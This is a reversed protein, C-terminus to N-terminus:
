NHNAAKKLASLVGMSGMVNKRIKAVAQVVINNEGDIDLGTTDEVLRAKLFGRRIAETVYVREGTVNNVYNATHRDILGRSVAELFPIKIKRRQDVVANVAYTKEEIELEEEDDEYDM